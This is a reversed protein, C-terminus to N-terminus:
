TRITRYISGKGHVIVNWKAFRKRNALSRDGGTTSERPPNERKQERFNSKGKARSGVKLSGATRKAASRRRVEDRTDNSILGFFRHVLKERALVGM